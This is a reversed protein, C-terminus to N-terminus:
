RPAPACQMPPWPECAADDPPDLQARQLMAREAAAIVDDRFLDFARGFGLARAQAEIDRADM